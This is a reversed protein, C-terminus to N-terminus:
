LHLTGEEFLFYLFYFGVCAFHLFRRTRLERINWLLYPLLILNYVSTYVSMRGTLIGSTFVAFINMAVTLVSLNVFFNIAPDHEERIQWRLLFSLIMPVASVAARIPHAGDDGGERFVGMSYGVTDAFDDFLDANRIVMYTVVSVAVILIMTKYDWIRGQAVFLVPLMYLATRHFTAALLVILVSRFYKREVMWPTAALIITVAMFQRLGNTMWALHYGGAVFLYISLLYNPSYKRLIFILPISHVLSIALRYLTENDFFVTHTLLNFIAFGKEEQALLYEWAGSFTTPTDHYMSLYLFTDVRVRGLVAFAIIPLFIAVAVWPRYRYVQKGGVTEMKGYNIFILIVAMAAIWAFLLLNDTEM